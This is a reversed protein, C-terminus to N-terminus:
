GKRTKRDARAAAGSVEAMRRSFRRLHERILQKADAYKKSHLAGLIAEHEKIAGKMVGPRAASVEMNPQMLELVQAYLMDNLPNGLANM